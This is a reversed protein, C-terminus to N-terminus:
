KSGFSRVKRIRHIFGRGYFQRYLFSNSWDDDESEATPPILLEDIEVVPLDVPQCWHVSQDAIVLMLANMDSNLLSFRNDPGGCRIQAM